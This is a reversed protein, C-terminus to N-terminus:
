KLLWIRINRVWFMRGEWDLLLWFIAVREMAFTLFGSGFPHLGNGWLQINWFFTEPKIQAPCPRTVAGEWRLRGGQPDKRLCCNGPSRLFSCCSQIKCGRQNLAASFCCIRKWFDTWFSAAETDHAWEQALCPAYPLFCGATNPGLLQPTSEWPFWQFQFVCLLKSTSLISPAWFCRMCLRQLPHFWCLPLHCARLAQRCHGDARVGASTNVTHLHNDQVWCLDSWEEHYHCLTLENLEWFSWLPAESIHGWQPCLMSQPMCFCIHPM